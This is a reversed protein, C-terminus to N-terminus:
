AYDSLWLDRDFAEVRQLAIFLVVLAAVGFIVTVTGSKRNM